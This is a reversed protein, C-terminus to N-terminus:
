ANWAVATSPRLQNKIPWSVMLSHYSYQACGIKSVDCVVHSSIRSVLQQTSRDSSTSQGIDNDNYDDDDDNSSDDEIRKERETRRERDNARKVYQRQLTHPARLKVRKAYM